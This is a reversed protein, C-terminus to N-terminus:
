RRYLHELNDRPAWGLLRRAKENAYRGHPLDATLHVIDFPRPFSPVDIAHRLARGADDWSISMPHPGGPVPEAVDPNVFACFVLCPTELGHDEAAIRAVEQGLYKSVTYQWTGTRPPADDPVDFEHGYGSPRDHLNLAPGTHVARRIGHAIAARAVYWAGEFNVQFAGVVDHRIVTLNVLADANALADWVHVPNTVDCTMAEHPADPVTPLPAGPSQPQNAARIDALPRADTLRTVYASQMHPATASGLPGGAGLVTVRRIARVRSGENSAPSPAVGGGPLGSSPASGPRSTPAPRSGLGPLADPHDHRPECLYSPAYGITRAAGIPMRAHEGGGPAHFLWWGHAAEPRAYPESGGLTSTAALVCAAAADEVHVEDWAVPGGDTRLRAMRVCAVTIPEVLALQRAVEEALYPGLAAPDDLAPRPQWSEAVSWAPDYRELHSLSSVLVFRAVRAAAAARVLLYTGRCLREMFVGAPKWTTPDDRHGASPADDVANVPRLDIVVDADAVAAACEDPQEADGDWGLITSGDPLPAQRLRALVAHGIASTPATVVIKV